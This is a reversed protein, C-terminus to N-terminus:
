DKPAIYGPLDTPAAGVPAKIHDFLRGPGAMFAKALPNKRLSAKAKEIQMVDAIRRDLFAWTDGYGESDDGLWFLLTSSYVASLTARKTYWNVDTSSDGLVDWIASVTAWILGAGEAGHQPLAFLAAGRRVAERDAQELRVRVGYAVRESYRMAELDASQMADVMARDGQRHFAVALDLGKRPCAQAALGADVGSDAVAAAFTADSWGDFVVNMLAADLLRARAEEIHTEETKDTQTM